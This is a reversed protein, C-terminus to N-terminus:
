AANDPTAQPLSSAVKTLYNQMSKALIGLEEPSFIIRDGLKFEPKLSRPTANRVQALLREDTIAGSHVIVHRCAQGCIINNVDEGMQPDVGLFDRFARNISQMDQFSIDRKSIILDGVRDVNFGHLEGVTLKLEEDLLAKPEGRSLLYPVCSRVIDAAASAFYSVQLVVCQNFIEEYQPRMSDNERIRRLQSLAGTVLHRPNSTLSGLREQLSTLSSISFDLVIRDFGALREVSALNEAFASIVGEAITRM